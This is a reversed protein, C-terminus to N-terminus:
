VHARGIECDPIHGAQHLLDYMAQNAEIFQKAVDMEEQPYPANGEPKSRNGMIPLMDQKNQNAFPRYAAFAKQYVDAANPTGAPLEHRAELEAFSTPIGQAKLEAIKRELESRGALIFLVLVGVIVALVVALRIFWGKLERRKEHKDTLQM